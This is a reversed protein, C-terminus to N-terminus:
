KGLPPPGFPPESGLGGPQPRKPPGLDDIFEKVDAQIQEKPPPEIAVNNSEKEGDSTFMPIMFPTFVALVTAVTSIVALRLPWKSHPKNSEPEM